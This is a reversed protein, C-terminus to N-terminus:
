ARPAVRLETRGDLDVELTAGGRADAVLESARAGTVAYRALPRLREIGLTQRGPKAGPHLVLDLADGESWAKAVLVDPYRADALRPGSLVSAPPGEVVSARFDGTRALRGQIALANALNSSHAYRRVGGNTALGCELDLARQAGEAIEDEGFERACLLITAYDMTHGFRYHGPDLGRGPLVLRAVGSADNVLAPRLEERAVAWLRRARDPAFCNAFWAFGAEGAPFPAEIGTHQSRLGIYSGSEDTFERDLMEQWRPLHDSVYTTGFAADHAALCTMGYHNCIPYIWNPECPFLCFDSRDFGKAVSEAITHIDHVYATRENLRFTLSGPEGYRRDGSSVMYQGVHMGFWGTLMINDRAVPDFNTFNLHGWCSEYVWYGWVRRQLYREILNRQALGLHGGFSPAYHCQYLALAFGLHNLQYRLAAPQFQDIIDFGDWRDAPQLARDLAYRVSEIQDVSLERAAPSPRAAARKQVEAWSAPVFAARAQQKERKAARRRTGRSRFYSLTALSFVPVLFTAGAWISEDAAAGALAAAGLWVILPALVMGSWFWAILSAGFLAVTLPFLLVAFGGVALFGAGPLWLGLGAAQWSAPAGALVPLFGLACLAAYILATRRQRAATVPGKGQTAVSRPFVHDMTTM